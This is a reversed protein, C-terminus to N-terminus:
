IFRIRDSGNRSAGQARENDPHITHFGNAVELCQSLEGTKARPQRDPLHAPRDDRESRDAVHHNPPASCRCDVRRWRKAGLTFRLRASLYRRRVGRHSLAGLLVVPLLALANGGLPDLALTDLLIGVLFAWLLGERVGRVASWVLIIVLTVDPFIGILDSSPFVTAQMFAFFVLSIALVVAAM